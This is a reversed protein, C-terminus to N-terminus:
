TLEYHRRRVTPHLRELQTAGVKPLSCRVFLVSGVPQWALGHRQLRRLARAIASQTGRPSGLGLAGALEDLSTTVAPEHELASALRRWVLFSSPGVMPLWVAEVYPSAPGFWGERPTTTAPVAAVRLTESM